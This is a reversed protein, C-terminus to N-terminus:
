VRQRLTSCNRRPRVCSRVRAPCVSEVPNVLVTDFGAAAFRNMFSRRKIADLFYAAPTRTPSYVAGSHIAPLSLFTTRAAGATDPYYEFARSRRRSRVLVQPHHGAAIDSELGDLLVVLVNERSSFRYVDAPVVHPARQSASFQCRGCDDHRLPRDTLLALGFAAALPARSVAFAVAVGAVIAALM